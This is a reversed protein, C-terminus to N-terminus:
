TAAGGEFAETLQDVLGEIELRLDLYLTTYRNYFPNYYTSDPALQPSITSYGVGIELAPIPAFTAEVEFASAHRLDTPSENEWSIRPDDGEIPYLWDVIHEFAASFGLWELPQYSLDVGHQVRWQANRLGTNVFSECGAGSSACTPILPTEREATTAEHFYSNFRVHYGVQWDGGLEWSRSLRVNPGIGLYLTRARAVKSTPLTLTVDASLDIGVGPITVFRAGGGSLRLDQLWAEGAYTTDDAETVERTVELRAGAFWHEDFYWRFKFGFEMAWDPNWTLEASRDMGSVTAVNRYSFESGRWPALEEEPEVPAELNIEGGDEDGGGAPDAARAAPPCLLLGAALLAASSFRRDPQRAASSHFCSNSWM